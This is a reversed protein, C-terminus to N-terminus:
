RRACRRCRAPPRVPAVACGRGMGGNAMGDEFNKIFEERGADIKALMKDRSPKINFYIVIDKEGLEKAALGAPMIMATPKTAVLEASTGIAAYTGWNAIFSKQGPGMSATTVDGTTQADAFNGIFAKYDTVPMLMLVTEKKADMASAPIIFALEGNEDLGNQIKSKQKMAALPDALQPVFAAIGLKQAFAAIKDSTAKLKAFKIVILADSPAQQMVQANALPTLVFMAVAVCTATFGGFRKM